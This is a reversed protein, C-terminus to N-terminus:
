RGTGAVVLSQVEVVKVPLVTRSTLDPFIGGQGAGTWVVSWHTTVVAQFVGDREGASPRAFTHGCDPSAAAPDAGPSYPTGPGRCVVPESGDGFEWVVSSPTATAQVTVGPVEASSQVPKWSSKQVWLWAPVGVVQHSTEPPSMRVTPRPLELRAVAQAALVVPDVAPAQEAAEPKGLDAWLPGGTLPTSGFGGQPLTGGCDLEYWQGQHGDSLKLVDSAPM